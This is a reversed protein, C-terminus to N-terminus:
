PTSRALAFTRFRVGSRRGLRRDRLGDDGDAEVRCAWRGSTRESMGPLAAAEPRGPEAAQSRYMTDRLKPKRLGQRQETRRTRGALDFAVPRVM